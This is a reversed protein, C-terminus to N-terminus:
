TADWVEGQFTLQSDASASGALLVVESGPPRPATGAFLAISMRTGAPYTGEGRFDFSLARTGTPVTAPEDGACGTVAEFADAVQFLIQFHWFCTGGRPDNLVTGVVDVWLTANGVVGDTQGPWTAEWSYAPIGAVLSAFAAATLDATSMIPVRVPTGEPPATTTVDPVDLLHLTGNVPKLVTAEM